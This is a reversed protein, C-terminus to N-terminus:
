RAIATERAGCNKRQAFIGCEKQTNKILNATPCIFCFGWWSSHLLNIEYVKKREFNPIYAVVESFAQVPRFSFFFFSCQTSYCYSLYPRRCVTTTYISTM